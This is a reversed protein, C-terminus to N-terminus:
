KSRRADNLLYTSFAVAEAWFQKRLGKQKLMIKTMDLITRNKREVIGNQQPTYANTFHRKIGQERCYGQFMNSTYEGGRDSRLTILKHGSEAEVLAKFNKFTTFAASKEKLIYVWLKRSFDDIFTIFYRNGGLSVPDLPGCIDTHVLQLPAEARWSKGNPFPLRTQKGIICVECTHSPPDITPLGRVMGATSLLKLGSFNLHGFRLHWRWSENKMLGQFCKEVKTNLHLPFMRNRTMKICAILGGKANKLWLHNNEMYVKYGKELLQGISLINSKMNPIYYVDSIYEPKGDKQYIKIKGRGEVSLKSSDGLSVSGHVGEALEMFLEKKGCM